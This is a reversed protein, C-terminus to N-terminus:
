IAEAIVAANWTSESPEDNISPFVCLARVQLGALECILSLEQAFFYRMLHTENSKRLAGPESFDLLSFHITAIQQLSNLEARTVRVITHGEEEVVRVRDGPPSKLVAPGYWFDAIFIGGPRLQQRVNRLTRTLKGTDNLYGLVAFMMIAADFTMGLQATEIDGLVFEVQASARPSGQRVKARAIDLMSPSVDVGIVSYGRRGLEIAHEGTGCGLDLLRRYTGTAYRALATEIFDCEARYDKDRYLADYADSYSEGFPRSSV